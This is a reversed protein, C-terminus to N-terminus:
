LFLMSLLYWNIYMWFGNLWLKSLENKCFYLKWIFSCFVQRRKWIWENIWNSYISTLILSKYFHNIKRMKNKNTVFKEIIYNSSQLLSKLSIIFLLVWFLVTIWFITYFVDYVKFYLICLKYVTNVTYVLNRLM